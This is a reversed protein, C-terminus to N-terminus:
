ARSSRFTMLHGPASTTRGSRLNRSSSAVIIIRCGISVARRRTARWHWHDSAPAVYTHPPACRLLGGHNRRRGNRIRATCARMCAHM